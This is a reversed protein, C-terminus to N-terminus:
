WRSSYKDVLTDYIPDTNYLKLWQLKENFTKPSKLDLPYGMIYRFKLKTFAEDPLWKLYRAYDM